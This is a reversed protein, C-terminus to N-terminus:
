RPRTGASGLSHLTSSRAISASDAIPSPTPSWPKSRRSCRTSSTTVRVSTSTTAPWFEVGYLAAQDTFFRRYEADGPSGEGTVVVKRLGQAALYAALIAAEEGHGGNALSYCHPGTFLTTGAMTIYPVDTENIVDRLVLANNTVGHVDGTPLRARRPRPLCRHRERGYRGALWSCPQGRARRKAHSPVREHLGRLRPHDPRLVRRTISGSALGVPVRDPAGAHELQGTADGHDTRTSPPTAGWRYRGHQPWLVASPSKWDRLGEDGGIILRGHPGTARMTPRM